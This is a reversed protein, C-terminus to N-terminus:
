KRQALKEIRRDLELNRELNKAQFRPGHRRWDHTALDGFQKIKGSLFGRGLPSHPVFAIGLDRCTPFIAAEADRTWM